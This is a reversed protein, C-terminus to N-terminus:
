HLFSLQAGFFYSRLNSLALGGMNVVILACGHISQSISIGVSFVGSYFKHEQLGTKLCVPSKSLVYLLKLSNKKYHIRSMVTLPLTQWKQVKEQLTRISLVLFRSIPLQVLIGLYKFSGSLPSPCDASVM